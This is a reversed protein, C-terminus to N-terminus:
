PRSNCRLPPPAEATPTSLGCFRYPVTTTHHKLLHRIGTTCSHHKFTCRSHKWASKEFAFKTFDEFNKSFFHFDAAQFIRRLSDGGTGGRPPSSPQRGGVRPAEGGTGGLFGAQPQRRAGTSRDRPQAAAGSDRAAPKGLSRAAM